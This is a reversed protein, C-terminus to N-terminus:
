VSRSWLEACLMMTQLVATEATISRVLSVPLTTTMATTNVGYFLVKGLLDSPKAVKECERRYDEYVGPFMRRIQAALGAGMVGQCNVQHCVVCEHGTHNPSLIDGDKYLIRGEM